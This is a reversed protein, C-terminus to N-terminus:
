ETRYFKRDFKVDHKSLIQKRLGLGFVAAHFELQPKTKHRIPAVCCKGIVYTLSLTAEDQLYAVIGLAENSAFTFIHLRWNTCEIQFHLRNILFKRVERLESCWDIFLQSHDGPLKKDLELRMVAWIRKLLFQRWINFLSCIALPDFVASVFSRSFRQIIQQLKKSLGAVSWSVMQKRM